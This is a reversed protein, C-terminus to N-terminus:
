SNTGDNKEMTRVISQYIYWWDAVTEPIVGRYHVQMLMYWDEPPISYQECFERLADNYTLILTM